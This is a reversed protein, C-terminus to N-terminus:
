SNIRTSIGGEGDRDRDKPPGNGNGQATESEKGKGKKKKKKKDKKTKKIFGDDEEEEEEEEEDEEEEGGRDRGGGGGTDGGDEKAERDGGAPNEQQLGERASPEGAYPQHYEAWEEDVTREELGHNIRIVNPNADLGLGQGGGNLNAGTRGTGQQYRRSTTAQQQILMFPAQVILSLLAGHAHPIASSNTIGYTIDHLDNGIKSSVPNRIRLQTLVERELMLVEPHRSTYPTFFEKVINNELLQRRLAQLASEAIDDLGFKKALRFMSKPSATVFNDRGGPSRLGVGASRLPGFCPLGLSLTMSLARWTRWAGFKVDIGDEKFNRVPPPPPTPTKERKPSKPKPIREIRTPKPPRPRPSKPAMGEEYWKPYVVQISPRRGWSEELSSGGVHIAASRELNMSSSAGGSTERGEPSTEHAATPTNRGSSPPTIPESATDSWIYSGMELREQEALAEDDTVEVEDYQTEEDSDSSDSSAIDILEEPEPPPDPESDSLDSDEDYDEEPQFQGNFFEKFRASALEFLEPNIFIFDDPGAPYGRARQVYLKTDNPNIGQLAKIEARHFIALRADDYATGRGSESLVKKMFPSEFTTELPSLSPRSQSSAM